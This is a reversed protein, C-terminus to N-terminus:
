TSQGDADLDRLRGSARKNSLLDDLGIYPIRLGDVQAWKMGQMAKQFDYRAIQTTFEVHGQYTRGGLSFMIMPDTVKELPSADFGYAHLAKVLKSKNTAAGDFLIDLDGTGRSYGHLNVAM